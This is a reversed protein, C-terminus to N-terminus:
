GDAGGFSPGRAPDGRRAHEEAGVAHADAGVAAEVDRLGEAALNARDLDGAAGDFGDAGDAARNDCGVIEGEIRVADEIDGLHHTLPYARTRGVAVQADDGVVYRGGVADHLPM